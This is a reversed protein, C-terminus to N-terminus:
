DQSQLLRVRSKWPSSFFDAIIFLCGSHFSRPLIDVYFITLFISLYLLFNIPFCFMHAPRNTRKSVPESRDLRLGIHICSWIRILRMVTAEDTRSSGSASNCNHTTCPPLFMQNAILKTASFCTAFNHLVRAEFSGATRSLGRKGATM